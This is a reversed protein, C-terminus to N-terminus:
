IIWFIIPWQALLGLQTRASDTSENSTLQALAGDYPAMKTEGLGWVGSPLFKPFHEPSPHPKGLLPGALTFESLRCPGFLLSLAYFSIAVISLSGRSFQSLSSLASLLRCANIFVSVLRKLLWVPSMPGGGWVGAPGWSFAILKLSM